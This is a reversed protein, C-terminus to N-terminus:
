EAKASTVPPYVQGVTRAVTVDLVRSGTWLSGSSCPQATEDGVQFWQVRM